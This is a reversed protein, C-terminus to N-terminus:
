TISCVAPSDGELSSWPHLFWCEPKSCMHCHSAEREWWCILNGIKGDATV